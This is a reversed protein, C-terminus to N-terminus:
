KSSKASFDNKNNNSKVIYLRSYLQITTTKDYNHSKIITYIYYKTNINDKINNNNFVNFGIDVRNM